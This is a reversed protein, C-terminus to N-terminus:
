DDDDIDSEEEQEVAHHNFFPILNRFKDIFDFPLKGLFGFVAFFLFTDFRCKQGPM